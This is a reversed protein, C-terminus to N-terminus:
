AGPLNRKRLYALIREVVQDVDWGETDIELSACERYLPERIALLQEIERVGGGSTLQPRRKATTADELIRAAITNVSATLWVVPGAERLERRTDANLIAGGGAALILKDRQLLEQLVDRERQRFGAEGEAEFVQKITCGARHELESDADIWYWGLKAALRPAVSSKGTGRYGILSVLM